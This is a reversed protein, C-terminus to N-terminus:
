RDVFPNAFIRDLAPHASLDVRNWDPLSKGLLHQVFYDYRARLGYDGGHGHGGGPIVLLDFTRNARILMDVVQYTSAPDVNHDMEGVVLLLRGQLRWANDVNSAEAYQPGVPWGMFLENFSIKDMRHDHNGNSAVGVHYFDPHHLLGATAAYGGASGGYIGVRSLDYSPHAEAAARHWLIRDPFGADHLQHYAVDQFAKSRDSTGMGDIQVVIFGLEALAQLQGHTSFTKPVSSNQAGAYIQEIVPYSGEPDYDLPRVIIGWIDTVGDRGETVFVEPPRWGAAELRSIDTEELEMLPERDATRHLTLRPPLDVRSRLSVFYERDASYSLTHDADEETLAVLGTGDFGISYYHVFYPDQDPNMGSARFWIRREEEDVHDVERVVWDGSTIQNIVEGTTGDYLYLHNWGDRESMWVIENGDEVDHRFYKGRYRGQYFFFTESTEEIVTRTGGTAADVEVVRYLEHGRQNYEVTFGRSDEWWEPGALDFQDPWLAGDVPIARRSELDFLAPHRQDVIDGPKTYDLTSYRPQLQDAPASEIYRLIRRQGPALRIAALKRSDPSWSLSELTYFGGSDGDWSLQFAEGGEMPRVFVNYSRIFAEWRGDPSIVTGGPAPEPDPGRHLIGVPNVAPSPTLAAFERCRYPALECDWRHGFASFQVTAAEDSFALDGLPLNEAQVTRGSADALAGALAAHDFAPARELSAADVMLYERGESGTRTYWFRHSSGVWQAASPQGEVMSQLESGVTFAREYRDLLSQATVEGAPLALLLATFLPPLKSATSRRTFM